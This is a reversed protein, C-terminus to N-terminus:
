ASRHYVTFHIGPGYEFTGSPAFGLFEAFRVHSLNNEDIYMHAYRFRHIFEDVFRRMDRTLKQAHEFFEEKLAMWLYGNPWWGVLGLVTMDDDEVKVIARVESMQLAEKLLVKPDLNAADYVARAEPILNEAVDDLDEPTCGDIIFQM